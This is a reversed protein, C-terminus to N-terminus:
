AGWADGALHDADIGALMQVPFSQVHEVQLPNLLGEGLASKEAYITM